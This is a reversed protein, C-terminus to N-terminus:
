RLLDIRRVREADLGCGDGGRASGAQRLVEERVRWEADLRAIVTDAEARSERAVAAQRATEDRARASWEQDAATFGRRYGRHDLYWASASGAVFVVACLGIQWPIM